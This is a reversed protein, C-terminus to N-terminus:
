FILFWNLVKLVLISLIEHSLLFSETSHGSGLKKCFVRMVKELNSFWRAHDTFWQHHFINYATLYSLTFHFTVFAHVLTEKHHDYSCTYHSAGLILFICQVLKADFFEKCQFKCFSSFDLDVM